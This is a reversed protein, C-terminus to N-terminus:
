VLNHLKAGWGGKWTNSQYNNSFTWVHLSSPGSSIYSAGGESMGGLPGGPGWSGGLSLMGDKVEFRDLPDPPDILGTRGGGLNGGRESMLSSEGEVGLLSKRGGKTLDLSRM